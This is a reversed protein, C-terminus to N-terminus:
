SFFATDSHWIGVGYFVLPPFILRLLLLISFPFNLRNLTINSFAKAPTNKRIPDTLTLSLKITVSLHDSTSDPFDQIEVSLLNSLLSDSILIYDLLSGSTVGGRNNLRTWSSDCDFDSM